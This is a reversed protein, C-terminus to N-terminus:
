GEVNWGRASDGRRALTPPPHRRPLPRAADPDVRLRADVVMAGDPTVIVPNCDLEAVEPMEEVLRSVRHLVQALGDM